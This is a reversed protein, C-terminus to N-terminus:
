GGHGRSGDPLLANPRRDGAAYALAGALAPAVAQPTFRAVAREHAARGLQKRVLADAAEALRRKLADGDGPEFLLGADGLAWRIPPLDAAIIARGLMMADILKVPFQLRAFPHHLSPVVVVDARQLLEMAAPFPLTGRWDEHAKADSPTHGTIVLRYGVSPHLEAVADRLLTLGKHARPTGIFAVVPPGGDLGPSAPRRERVHPVVTGMGYLERLIPNSVTLPARRLLTGLRRLQFPHERRLITSPRVAGLRQLATFSARLAELDPDDVDLLWPIDLKRATPEAVGLSRPLAKVAILLDAGAAMATLRRASWEQVPVARCRAAFDSAALPLWLPGEAPGLVDSKWGLVDLVLSLSFARGLANGSVTPAVLVARM